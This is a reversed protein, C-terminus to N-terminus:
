CINGNTGSDGRDDPFWILMLSQQRGARGSMM